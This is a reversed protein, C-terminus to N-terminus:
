ESLGAARLAEDHDLFVRIRSVKGDRFDSIARYPTDVPVGSGKGRGEMRGLWLVRDGLDRLEDLLVRFEEWAGRVDEFYREMGERGKFSRGEVTGVLSPYYEFDPTVCKMFADLDRRNFADTARKVIEVNEQSM